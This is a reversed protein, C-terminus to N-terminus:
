QLPFHNCVKFPPFHACHSRNELISLVLSISLIRKRLCRFDFLLISLLVLETLRLHKCCTLERRIRKEGDSNMELKFSQLKHLRRMITFYQNCTIESNHLSFVNTRFYNHLKHLAKWIFQCLIAGNMRLYHFIIWYLAIIICCLDKVTIICVNQSVSNTINFKM